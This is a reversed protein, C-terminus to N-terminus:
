LRKLKKRIHHINQHALPKKYSEAAKDKEGKENYFDELAEHVHYTNPYNQANM